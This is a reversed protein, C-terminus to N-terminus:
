RKECLTAYLIKNRYEQLMKKQKTKSYPGRGTENTAQAFNKSNRVVNGRVCVGKTCVYM